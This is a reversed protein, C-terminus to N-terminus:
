YRRIGQVAAEGQAASGCVEYGLASLQEGLDMAIVAEDEVVFVRIGTGAAQARGAGEGYRGPPPPAAGGGRGSWHIKIGTMSGMM